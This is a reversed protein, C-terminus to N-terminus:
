IGLANVPRYSNWILEPYDSEHARLFNFLSPAYVDQGYYGALQRLSLSVRQILASPGVNVGNEVMSEIVGVNQFSLSKDKLYEIYVYYACISVLETNKLGNWHVTRTGQLYEKGEVIDIIRQDSGPNAYAIVLKALSYGLLYELIEPEYRAIATTLNSTTATPNPINIDRVFYTYDILSM